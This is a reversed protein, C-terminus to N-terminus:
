KIVSSLSDNGGFSTIGLSWFEKFVEILRTKYPVNKNYIDDEGLDETLDTQQKEEELPVLKSELPESWYKEFFNGEM